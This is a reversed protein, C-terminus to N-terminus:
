RLQRGAVGGPSFTRGNATPVAYLGVVLAPVYLLGLGGFLAPLMAALLVICAALTSRAASSSWLVGAAVFGLAITWGNWVNLSVDRAIVIVLLLLSAGAAFLAAMRNAAM